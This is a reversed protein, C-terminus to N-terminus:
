RTRLGIVRYLTPSVVVAIATVDLDGRHGARRRLQRRTPDDLKAAAAVHAEALVDELRGPGRWRAATEAPIELRIGLQRLTQAPTSGPRPAGRIEKRPAYVARMVRAGLTTAVAVLDDGDEIVDLLDVALDRRQEATLGSVHERLEALHATSLRPGSM